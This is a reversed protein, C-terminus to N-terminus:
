LVSVSCSREGCSRYSEPYRCSKFHLNVTHWLLHCTVHMYWAESPSSLHRGMLWFFAVVRSTGHTLLLRHCTVYWSGSSPSSVHRVMHWFFAVAWYTHLSVGYILQLRKEQNARERVIYVSHGSLVFAMGTLLIMAIGIDSVKQLSFLVVRTKM